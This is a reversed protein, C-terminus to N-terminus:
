EKIRLADVLKRTISFNGPGFLVGEAAKLEETSGRKLEMLAEASIGTITVSESTTSAVAIEPAAGEPVKRVGVVVPAVVSPGDDAVLYFRREDNRAGDDEYVDLSLPQTGKYLYVTKEIEGKGEKLNGKEDFTHYGGEELCKGALYFWKGKLQQKLEPNQDVIVLVEQKTFPRLGNDELIRMSKSHDAKVNAIFVPITSTKVEKFTTQTRQLTATM